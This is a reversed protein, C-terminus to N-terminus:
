SCMRKGEEANTRPFTGLVLAAGTVAMRCWTSDVVQLDEIQRGNEGFWASRTPHLCRNCLINHAGRYIMSFKTCGRCLGFHWSDSGLFLLPVKFRQQVHFRVNKFCAKAPVFCNRQPARGGRDCHAAGERAVRTVYVTESNPVNTRM